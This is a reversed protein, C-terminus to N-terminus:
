ASGTPTSAAAAPKSAGRGARAVISIDGKCDDPAAGARPCFCDRRASAACARMQAVARARRRRGRHTGADRLLRGAPPWGTTSAPTRANTRSASTASLLAPVAGHLFARSGICLRSPREPVFAGGAVDAGQDGAIPIDGFRLGAAGAWGHRIRDHSAGQRLRARQRPCPRAM